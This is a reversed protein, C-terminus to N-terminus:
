DPLLGPLPDVTLVKNIIDIDVVIHRVDPILIERWDTGQVVFVDNAGTELVERVRGLHEGATTVVAANLVQFVYYEDDALPIADEVSVMLMQGRYREADDLTDIGKLKVLLHERHRRTGAVAFARASRRDYPDTGIYVTELQAIREPYDTVIKLRLEGRVGHPRMIQGLILFVPEVAPQHSAESRPPDHPPPAASMM